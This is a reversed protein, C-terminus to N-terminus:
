RVRIGGITTRFPLAAAGGAVQNVNIGLALWHVQFAGNDWTAQTNLAASGNADGFQMALGGLDATDRRETYGSASAEIFDSFNRTFHCVNIRDGDDGSVTVSSVINAASGTGSNSAYGDVPTGSVDADQTVTLGMLSPSTFDSADLAVVVDQLGSQAPNAIQFGQLAIGNASVKPGFPTMAAGACTVSVVARDDADVWGLYVKVVRNPGSGIDVNYTQQETGITAPFTRDIPATSTEHTAAM